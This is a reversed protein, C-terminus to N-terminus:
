RVEILQRVADPALPELGAAAEAALLGDFVAEEAAAAATHCTPSHQAVLRTATDILRDRDIAELAAREREDKPQM